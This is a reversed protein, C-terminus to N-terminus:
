QVAVAGKMGAELHGPQLCAFAVSGSHTFRWVLQGREGPALSAMNPGTHQMDPMALMMAAHRKLADPEGLVLEHRLKGQNQLVLRVTEGSKVDIHEPSFRMNDGMSVNITRSVQHPDGPQGIISAAM